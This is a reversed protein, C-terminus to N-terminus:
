HVTVPELKNSLSVLVAEEFSNMISLQRGDATCLAYSKNEGEQEIPRIYAVHELGLNRFDQTSMNKLMASVPNEEINSTM